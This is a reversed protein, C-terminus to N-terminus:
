ERSVFEMIKQSLSKVNLPKTVYDDFVKRFKEVEEELAYASLAIIPLNPRFEKILLTAELGDMVPMKIDMLILDITDNLKCTDVAEQGNKCHIIKLDLDMLLERVLIYNADEDETILVTKTNKLPMYTINENIVKEALKYPITFYFITGNRTNPELWINGELLEVFAKSIALGLGTGGYKRNISLDAQRFREFIKERLDPNIGIGTDKVYFQMHLTSPKKDPSHKTEVIQYGFEISGEHTFKLANSLLNTLIQTIKTKDTYIESKHNPLGLTANISLKQNLAKNRFISLLDNIIENINVIGINLKEQKTEISSITLIDSVISILQTCSNQIISIFSQKNDDPLNPKNLMGSFGSIANLPTRVEHSINQLFSTKLQNSEEAKMKAQQLEKNSNLLLEESAKLKSNKETLLENTENLKANNRKVLLYLLIATVVVYFSGKFTQYKLIRENPFFYELAKDSFIIWMFGIILYILTIRYEFKLKQKM